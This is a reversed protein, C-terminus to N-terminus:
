TRPRSRQLIFKQMMMILLFSDAREEKNQIRQIKRSRLQFKKDEPYLSLLPCTDRSPGQIYLFPLFGMFGM